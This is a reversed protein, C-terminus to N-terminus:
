VKLNIYKVRVTDFSRGQESSEEAHLDGEEGIDNIVKGGDARAAAAVGVQM